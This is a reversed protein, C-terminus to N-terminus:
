YARFLAPKSPPDGLTRMASRASRLFLRPRSAFIEALDDRHYATLFESVWRRQEACFPYFLGRTERWGQTQLAHSAVQQFLPSRVMHVAAFHEALLYATGVLLTAPLHSGRQSCVTGWFRSFKVISAASSPDIRQSM